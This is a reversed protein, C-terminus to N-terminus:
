EETPAAHHWAVSAPVPAPPPTALTALSAAASETALRIGKLEERIGRMETPIARLALSEERSLWLILPM